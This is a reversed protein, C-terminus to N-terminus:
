KETLYKVALDIAKIFNDSTDFYKVKYKECENRIMISYTVMNSIHTYIYEDSENCLWDNTGVSFKKVDDVKKNIDIGAYGLYCVKVKGPHKKLLEDAHEPLIAEGEIIYDNGVWIMNECMAKTFNWMKKAIEDPFLKDNIGYEPIGNTFGMVLWDLSLYPIKMDAFIKKSVITKGGRSTGSILYLM